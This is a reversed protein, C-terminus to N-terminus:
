WIRYAVLCLVSGIVLSAWPNSVFYPYVMLTIGLGILGFNQKTRGQRFMWWGFVGFAFGLFLAWFSLGAFLESAGAGSM